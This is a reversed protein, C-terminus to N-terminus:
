ASAALAHKQKRRYALYGVAAFGVLMLCWTAPEPVGGVAQGNFQVESLMMWPEKNGPIPDGPFQKNYAIADPGFPGANPQVKFTTGVLGSAFSVSLREDTSSLLTVTPTYTVGDITLTVPPGVLGIYAYQAYVDISFVKSKSSLNFTITPDLYKWGVYLGTGQANSNPIGNTMGSFGTTAIIGDTLKGTGGSLPASDVTKNGSGTYNRDWYNWTGLAGTGDGNQMDYSSVTLVSAAAPSMGFALAVLAAASLFPRVSM